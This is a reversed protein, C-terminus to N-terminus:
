LIQTDDWVEERLAWARAEQENDFTYCLYRDRYKDYIRWKYKTHDYVVIYRGIM